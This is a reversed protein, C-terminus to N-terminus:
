WSTSVTEKNADLFKETNIKWRRTLTFNLRTGLDGVALPSFVSHSRPVLNLSIPLNWFEFVSGIEFPFIPRETGNLWFGPQQIKTLKSLQSCCKWFNGYFLVVERVIGLNEFFKGPLKRETCPYYFSQTKRNDMNRAVKCAFIELFKPQTTRMESIWGNGPNRFSKRSIETGNAATELTEFTTTSHFAGITYAHHVTNGPCKKLSFGESCANLFERFYSIRSGDPIKRSIDDNLIAPTKPQSTMM